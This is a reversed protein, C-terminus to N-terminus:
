RATSTRQLNSSDLGKVVRSRFSRSSCSRRDMRGTNMHEIGRPLKWLNRTIRSAAASCSFLAFKVNLSSMKSWPILKELGGSCLVFISWTCARQSGTQPGPSSRERGGQLSDRGRILCGKDDTTKRFISLSICLPSWVHNLRLNALNIIVM